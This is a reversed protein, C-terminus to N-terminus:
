QNPTAEVKLRDALRRVALTSRDGSKIGDGEIALGVPLPFAAGNVDVLRLSNGNFDMEPGRAPLEVTRGDTLKGLSGRAAEFCDLWLGLYGDRVFGPGRQSWSHTFSNVWRTREFNPIT